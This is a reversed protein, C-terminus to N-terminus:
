ARPLLSEKTTHFLEIDFQIRPAELYFEPEEAWRTERWYASSARIEEVEWCLKRRPLDCVFCFDALLASRRKEIQM